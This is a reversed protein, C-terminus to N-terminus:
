NAVLGFSADGELQVVIDDGLGCFIETSEASALLAFAFGAVFERVLARGKVSDDLLEHDLTTIERGVISSTPLRDVAGLKVVLVEGELVFLREQQGHRICTWTLKGEGNFDRPSYELLIYAGVARLEENGGHRGRM